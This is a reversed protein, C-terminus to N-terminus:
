RGAGAGGASLGFHERLFDELRKESALLGPLVEEVGAEGAKNDLLSAVRRFYSPALRRPQQLLYAQFENVVLYPDSADYGLAALLRTIFNRLEPGAEAWSRECLARYDAQTFFIGHYSEHDLLLIRQERSSSRSFSLVAGSGPVLSNDRMRLLGERLSIERLLEEARDLRFGEAEAKNFFSALEEAGYDHANWGHRGALEADTLLRGRFGPKELYFALRSFMANQAEFDAMDFILVSPFRDWRHLEFALGGPLPGVRDELALLSSPRPEQVEALAPWSHAAEAQLALASCIFVIAFLFNASPRRDTRRPTNALNM